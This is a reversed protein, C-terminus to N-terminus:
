RPVRPERPKFLPGHSSEPCGKSYELWETKPMGKDLFKSMLLIDDYKGEHKRAKKRLGDVKFGFKKYFRVAHRNSDYVELQVSEFGNVWRAHGLCTKFLRTGIGLDRYERLVGMYLLGVHGTGPRDDPRINCWGIVEGGRLALFYTERNRIKKLATKRVERFPPAKVALLYKIEHAVRDLVRHYGRIYKERMPVIAITTKDPEPMPAGARRPDM